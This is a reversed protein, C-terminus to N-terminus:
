ELEGILSINTVETRDSDLDKYRRDKHVRDQAKKVAENFDSARLLWNDFNNGIVVKFVYEAM